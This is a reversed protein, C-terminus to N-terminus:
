TCCETSKKKCLVTSAIEYLKQKLKGLLNHKNVMLTDSSIENDDKKSESTLMETHSIVSLMTICKVCNQLWANTKKLQVLPSLHFFFVYWVFNTFRYPVDLEGRGWGEGGGWGGISYLDVRTQLLANKLQVQERGRIKLDRRRLTYLLLMFATKEARLM